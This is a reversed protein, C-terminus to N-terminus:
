NFYQETQILIVEGIHVIGIHLIYLDCLDYMFTICFMLPVVIKILLHFSTLLTKEKRSIIGNIIYNWLIIM